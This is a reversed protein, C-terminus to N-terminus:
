HPAIEIWGSLTTFTIGQLYITGFDAGHGDDNVASSPEGNIDGDYVPTLSMANIYIELTPIGILVGGVTNYDLGTNAQFGETLAPLRDTADITLARALFDGDTGIGIYNNLGLTQTADGSGLYCGEQATSAYDFFLDIQGCSTSTLDWVTAGSSSDSTGDVIANINLVDIQFNNLAIAGPAGTCAGASSNIGDCDIWAMKEINIFMQVDDMAISVGSQGTISDMANDNLMELGFATCPILMLALILALKKM